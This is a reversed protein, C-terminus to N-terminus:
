KIKFDINEDIDMYDEDLFEDDSPVPVSPRPPPEPLRIQQTEPIDFTELEEIINYEILQSEGLFRPFLYFVLSLGFIVYITIKRLRIPYTFLLPDLRIM